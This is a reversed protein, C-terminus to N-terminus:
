FFFFCFWIMDKWLVKVKKHDNEAQFHLKNKEQLKRFSKYKSLSSEIVTKTSVPQIGAEPPM